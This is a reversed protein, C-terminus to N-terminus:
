RRPRRRRWTLPLEIRRGLDGEGAPALGEAHLAAVVEWGVAVAAVEQELRTAGAPLAAGYAM